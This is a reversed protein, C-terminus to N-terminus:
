AALRVMATTEQAVENKTAEMARVTSGFRRPDPLSRPVKAAADNTLWECMRVFAHKRRGHQCPICAPPM